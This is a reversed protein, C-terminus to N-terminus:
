RPLLESGSSEINAGGENQNDSTISKSRGNKGEKKINYKKELRAVTSLIAARQLELGHAQQLLDSRWLLVEDLEM